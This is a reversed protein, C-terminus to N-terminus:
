PVVRDPVDVIDAPEAYREHSRNRGTLAEITAVRRDTATTRLPIAASSGPSARANRCWNRWTAQWDAKTADKGTKAHWFDAFKAAELRVTEATWGRM